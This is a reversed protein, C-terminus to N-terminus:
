MNYICHANWTADAELRILCLQGVHYSDHGVIYAYGAKLVEDSDSKCAEVAAARRTKMEQFLAPWATTEAKYTGWPYKRGNAVEHAALYCEALHVAIERATMAQSTMKLDLAQEDIGEYVKDLMFDLDALEHQLFESATM